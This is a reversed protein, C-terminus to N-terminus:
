LLKDFVRRMADLLVMLEFERRREMFEDMSMPKKALPFYGDNGHHARECRWCIAKGQEEQEQEVYGKCIGCLLRIRSVNDYGIRTVPPM